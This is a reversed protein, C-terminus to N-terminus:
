CAKFLESLVVERPGATRASSDVIHEELLESAINAQLVAVLRVANIGKKMEKELAHLTTKATQHPLAGEEIQRIVKKLYLEQEDTLQRLDKIAKLIRLIKTTTDRGGKGKFEVAEEMTAYLFAEKNKELFAYFVDTLKERKLGPFVELMHAARIFDLEDTKINDSLFFKELKGKRFYTLVREGKAKDSRATRCKKPLMKIKAFLDPKEDRISRIIKLYKLESEEIDDEGTITQKSILRSFLEHSEIEEGDTLLKADAGLMSIFAHIKAEAAEKLKIQDNSQVTPFFNFTYIKDFPTDVRNIRGVRQMLRTPNWPIDYNVVVNARHLNVGESLVETTVLIRYDDKQHRAKADFNDVVVQRLTDSSSGTFLLVDEKCKEHIHEALYESTEKSESFIIIKNNKMAVRTKLAHIFEELKPDRKITNWENQIKRLINLDEKLKEYFAPDFDKAEYKKARDADILKQIADEDAVDILEFIKNIHKKSIYIHGKDFESIFKEYSFITREITRKFAYFSSELRKVFLIKMFKGMNRQSLEEAQTRKGTYYLLPTYRAYTFKQAILEITKTFVADEKENLEYLLPKPATVEPFRMGQKKLDDGFFTEIEKRTRRVMLHKLIKDRIERSNQKAVKIYENKDRKRDLKRQRKELESFFREINPLNPITSKRSNQFLKIQSLIDRPSNNFPTATVLIVRKGRCIQALKEYTVNNESRFRHAEDIIVNKYKEMGHKILADLKGISEYDASIKFDFFSNRWSGPNGRELLAPPALVLTRGDIQGALLTAIYTKGLGVVDSIFVGGYEDLIKRANVVAQKQYELEKYNEPVYSMVIDNEQAIDEKFYEYLFKLYLEYPTITDNLWTRDNITEIYKEKLDVADEWLQNFKDKAFEYDARNKLEVNFELNDILGSQTFNSSGTIVRGADRDGELFTMIYLKAHINQSPYARIELKGEKLWDIFKKVGKEVLSTDESQKMEDAVLNGFTERAQPHSFDIEHQFSVVCDHTKKDTSIGILIRIKETDELSQYLTHFGSTYFYGALADFFRTSKILVRFRDALNQGKENTIFTLDNSM